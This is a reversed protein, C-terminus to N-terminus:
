PEVAQRRKLREVSALADRTFRAERPGTALEQLLAQAQPTGMHELAEIARHKQLRQPATFSEGLKALLGKARQKVELSPPDIVLRRLAPEAVEGLGELEMTAKERVAFSDHDMDKVLQALRAGDIVPLPALKTKLFAVTEAPRRALGWIAGHVRKGDAGALDKWLGPVIANAAVKPDSPPEKGPIDWFLIDQLGGGSALVRGDPSFAIAFADGEFDHYGRRELGTDIEWVKVGCWGGGAMLRSDPSVSLAMVYGTLGGLVRTREGMEFDWIEVNGSLDGSVLFRSDPTFAASRLTGLSLALTPGVRKDKDIDWLLSTRSGGLLLNGNPAFLVLQLGDVEDAVRRIVKRTGADWLSVGKGSLSKAAPDVAAPSDVTALIRGDPSFSAALIPRKDDVRLEKGTKTDLLQLPSQKSGVSLWDGTPSFATARGPYVHEWAAAREEKGHKWDWWRITEDRSLSILTNGSPLFGLMVASARHGPQPHREKGTMLDWLGVKGDGGASALSKGDPSFALSRVMATHGEFAKLMKGGALDWLKITRDAGASAATKGDPAFVAHKVGMEHRGVIAREKGTATEWLRVTKDASASILTQGDPSFCVSEVAADHGTFQRVSRGTAPNWLRITKDAGASALLDGKPNWVVSWVPGEHGTMRLQANGTRGDWLNITGDFGASALVKGDGSFAVAPVGGRSGESMFFLKGSAVDYVRIRNAPWGSAYEACALRKGDPSFCVCNQWRSLLFPKAREDEDRFRRLEKGTAPDWLRVAHDYGTSALMTGDPSFAVGTAGGHRLRVTGIRAVADEPLPDGLFDVHPAIPRPIGQADVGSALFAIALAALFYRLLAKSMAPEQFEQIVGLRCIVSNYSPAQLPGYKIKRERAVRSPHEAEM